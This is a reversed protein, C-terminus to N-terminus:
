AAISRRRARIRSRCPNALSAICPRLSAAAVDIRIAAGSGIPGPCNASGSYSLYGPLLPYPVGLSDRLEGQSPRLTQRCGPHRLFTTTTARDDGLSARARRSKVYDVPDVNVASQTIGGEQGSWGVPM